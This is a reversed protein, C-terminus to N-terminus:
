VSITERESWKDKDPRARKLSFPSFNSRIPKTWSVRLCSSRWCTRCSCTCSSPRLRCSSLLPTHTHRHTHSYLAFILFFSEVAPPM